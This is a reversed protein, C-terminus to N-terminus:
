SKFTGVVPWNEMIDEGHPSNDIEDTLDQGAVHIGGHEGDQWLDSETIDYVKGNVAVYAKRGEKGDFKKLEAEDFVKENM